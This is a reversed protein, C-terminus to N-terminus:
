RAGAALEFAKRTAEALDRATLTDYPGCGKLGVRYCRVTRSKRPRHDAKRHRTTVILEAFAKGDPTQYTGKGTKVLKQGQTVATNM